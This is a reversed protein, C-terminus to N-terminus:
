EHDLADDLNGGHNFIEEVKNPQIFVAKEEQKRYLLPAAEEPPAEIKSLKWLNAIRKAIGM